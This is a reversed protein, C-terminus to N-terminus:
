GKFVEFTLLAVAKEMDITFDTLVVGDENRVRVEELVNQVSAEVDGEVLAVKKPKSKPPM